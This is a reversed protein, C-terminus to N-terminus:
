SELLVKCLSPVEKTAPGEFANHFFGTNTKQLNVEYCQAGKEYAMLSFQNAPYVQGSTGIAVFIDTKDIQQYIKDLSLPLEGFWVVHPRLNGKIQCCPCPSEPSTDTTTTSVHGTQICRAKLLEGHMHLIQKSGAREHLNDINQTIIVVEGLYQKELEALALHAKNPRVRDSLLERRRENYFNHVLQPNKHFGEPTAVQEIPYNEWLGSHDRFTKIGSEASIGAGTLITIKPKKLKDGNKKM